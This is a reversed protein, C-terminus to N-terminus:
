NRREDQGPPLKAAQRYITRPQAIYGHRLFGVVADEDITPRWNPVPRFAKLQSAFLVREPTTAYYLPTSTQTGQQSARENALTM